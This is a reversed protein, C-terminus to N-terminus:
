QSLSVIHIYDLIWFICSTGQSRMQQIEMNAEDLQTQMLKMEQLAEEIEQGTTGGLSRYYYLFDDLQIRILKVPHYFWHYQSSISHLVIDLIM